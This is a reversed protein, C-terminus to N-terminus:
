IYSSATREFHSERFMTSIIIKPPLSLSVCIELSEGVFCTISHLLTETGGGQSPFEEEISLASVAARVAGAWRAWLSAM